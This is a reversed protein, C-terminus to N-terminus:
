RCSCQDHPHPPVARPPHDEPRPLTLWINRGVTGITSKFTGRPAVMLGDPMTTDELFECMGAHPQLEMDKYGLVVKSLYFLSDTARMRVDYYFNGPKM